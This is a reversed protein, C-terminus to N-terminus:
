LLHEKEETNYKEAQLTFMECYKGNLEMLEDHSGHEIIKGNEFMFIKDVMRTTSLRHSIFIVTKEFAASMMVKNLEYEAIPDLASSPEDLIVLECPKAFVRAIAIKQQEGGSLNTGDKTFEKTLETDVGNPLRSLITDFGVKNLADIVIPKEEDRVSDLMVNEAITAAFIKFDQFVTGFVNRYSDLDLSKISKGNIKIEGDTVDYLRTILKILTSKGAGNYGVFAVKEGANIKLSVGDITYDESSPYKFSVNSLEINDFKEDFMVAGDESKISPKCDFFTKFKEIYISHEKFITLTRAANRATRSLSWLAAFSASFDGLLMEGSYLLKYVLFLVIACDCIGALVFDDIATFAFVNKGTKKVKSNIEDVSSDFDRLLLDDVKSLRIEQAYDPLYFVRSVYDAKRWLPRTQEDRKFREKASKSGIITSIVACATIGVAVLGDVTVLVGVTIICSIINMVAHNLSYLLQTVRGSSENLAWIFDNYFEPDDYSAVDLQSAHKFLAKHMDDKLKFKGLTDSFRWYSVHLVYCIFLYGAMILSIKLVEEFPASQGLKNFLIRVFITSSVASQTGWMVAHLITFILYWPSYKCVLKLMFFTNKFTRM